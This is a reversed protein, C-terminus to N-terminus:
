EVKDRVKGLSSFPFPRKNTCFTMYRIFDYVVSNWYNCFEALDKSRKNTFLVYFFHVLTIIQILGRWL